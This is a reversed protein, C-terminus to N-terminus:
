RQNLIMVAFGVCGNLIFLIGAEVAILDMTMLWVASLATTVSAFGYARPTQYRYSAMFLVVMFGINMLIWFAGLTVDSAWQAACILMGECDGAFINTSYKM